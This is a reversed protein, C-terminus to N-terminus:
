RSEGETTKPAHKLLTALDIEMRELRAALPPWEEHLFHERESKLLASRAGETVYMGLGRRKEVLNEDVLEQYAKSVTIPNIQFDAAVQRVSPLADGQKLVGDLIMAVVRDRLQRYIPTNDNWVTSM